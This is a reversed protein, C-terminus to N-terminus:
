CVCKCVVDKTFHRKTKQQSPPERSLILGLGELNREVQAVQFFRAKQKIKSTPTEKWTATSYSILLAWRYLSDWASHPHVQDLHGEGWTGGNGRQTSQSNNQQPLQHHGTCLSLLLIPCSGSAQVNLFETVWPSELLHAWSKARQSRVTALPSDSFM